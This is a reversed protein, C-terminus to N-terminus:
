QAKVETNIQVQDGAARGAIGAATPRSSIGIKTVRSGGIKMAFDQAEDLRQQRHDRVVLATCGISAAGEDTMSADIIQQIRNVVRSTCAHKFDRRHQARDHDRRARLTGM